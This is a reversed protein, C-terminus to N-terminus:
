AAQKDREDIPRIVKAPVGGAIVGSPIDKSVVSGAAIVSDKGITVGRLVIVRGGLWVNDELIIPKSEPRENRREPDIHHFDNDMLMCYTGISCNAGIKIHKSASISCGYNIYTREGIELTGDPGAHIELPVVTSVLQVRDEIYIDGASYVYPRGWLRVRPGLSDAHRFYWRARLAAMGANLMDKLRM